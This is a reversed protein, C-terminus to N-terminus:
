AKHDRDICKLLTPFQARGIKALPQQVNTTRRGQGPLDRDFSWENKAFNDLRHKPM